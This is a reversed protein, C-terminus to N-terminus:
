VPCSVEGEECKTGKRTRNEADLTPLVGPWSAQRGRIGRRLEVGLRFAIKNWGEYDNDSFGSFLGVSPEPLLRITGILTDCSAEGWGDGGDDQSHKAQGLRHEM